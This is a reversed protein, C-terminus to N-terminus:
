VEVSWPTRLVELAMGSGLAKVLDELGSTGIRRATRVNHVELPRLVSMARDTNKNAM